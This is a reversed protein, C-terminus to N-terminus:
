EQPVKESKRVRPLAFGAAIMWIFGPCRTFPILFLAKPLLIELWSLEGAVAIVLGFIVIWKPLLKAFGATVSVGAILLGFPVSFGPGGLAFDIRFLAQLLTSDQAIGPYSMTWLVSSSAMMNFATAFGGFLAIYIGAARVGLFRLQSVVTATYLGLPVAAGFHLAACLLVASPRAQFFAVIVNLSESPGPFVPNGGFVTVPYLGALFLLVFVTAVIGLPPGAHRLHATPISPSENM